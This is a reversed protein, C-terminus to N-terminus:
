QPCFKILTLDKYFSFFIGLQFKIMFCSYKKLYHFYVYRLFHTVKRSRFHHDDLFDTREWSREPYQNICKNGRHCICFILISFLLWFSPIVKNNDNIYNNVSISNILVILNARYVYHYKNIHIQIRAAWSISCIKRFTNSRKCIKLTGVGSNQM